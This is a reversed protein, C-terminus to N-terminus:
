LIRAEVYIIEGGGMTTVLIVILEVRARQEHGDSPEGQGNGIALQWLPTPFNIEYNPKFGNGFALIHQM